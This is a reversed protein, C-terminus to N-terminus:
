GRPREDEWGHNHSQTSSPQDLKVGCKQESPTKDIYCPNASQCVLVKSPIFKKKLPTPTQFHTDGYSDSHREAFIIALLIPPPLSDCM